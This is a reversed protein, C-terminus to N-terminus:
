RLLKRLQRKLEDEPKVIPTGAEGESSGAPVSPVNGDFLKEMLASELKKELKKQEAKLLRRSQDAIADSFQLQYELAAIPGFVRVPVTIGAVDTFEKGGQGDPTAVLTVKALYDLRGEVMDIDGKGNLRIFPSRLSLDDNRAKGKNIVFSAKLDTFDTKKTSSAVTERNRKMSLLDGAERMSQALNIGKVAGDKLAISATGSLTRTLASVTDGRAKLDLEVTGRGDLLNQDLSDRLLPGIAVSSLTQRIAFTNAHANATVVGRTSGGYLRAFFPNIEGKGGGAKVNFRLDSLTVGSAILTGIRLEGALNLAKLPSLDFPTEDDEGEAPRGDTRGGKEQEDDGGADPTSDPGSATYRDGDFQDIGVDFRFFPDAFRKVDFVGEIDSQDFRVKLDVHITERKLNARIAGTLPITTSKMPLAPSRLQYQGSIGSLQYVQTQLNGKVATTLRGKVANEAQSADLDIALEGISLARESAAVGTLRFEVDARLEPGREGSTEAGAIVGTLSASLQAVTAAGKDVVLKPVSLRFKFTDEGMNASADVQLEGLSIWESAPRAEINASFTMALASLTAAVGDVGGELADVRFIQNDIDAIITGSARTRLDIAPRNARIIASYDFKTPVGVAIRGTEIALESIEYSAGSREDNWTFAANTFRVGEIELKVAPRDGADDIDGSAQAQDASADRADSDKVRGQKDEAGTEMEELSMLDDINMTGDARKIVLAHLGDLVIEDVVVQGALLPLFALAVRLDDVGAFEAKSSRESLRVAGLRVGIKPFFTLGIDGEISLTRGTKEAVVRTIDSKYLNPDFTAAIYGFLIGTVLILGVLVTLGYKLYKM